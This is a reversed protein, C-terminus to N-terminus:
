PRALRVGLTQHGLRVDVGRHEAALRRLRALSAASAPQDASFSGPEVGNEWGWATHSADGVMLVPGEPTRALFATSGPTHGPVHIAWLSGDGFVDLVAEFAGDKEPVFGWERLPGKGAAARSLNPGVVLNEVSRLATEGPGLYVPVDAPVDALGSVHDLHLHTLFVGSLPQSQRSLWTATDIHVKMAEVKMFRAVIGRIAADEDPRTLAREVGTDVMYLGHEPHRLAHFYVQIPEVGDELGATQAKPHDLNLLGSLAVEWDAGAVTEVQIPGPEDIVALLEASPRPTGLDAPEVPHNTARCGAAGLALACALATVTHSIPSRTRM